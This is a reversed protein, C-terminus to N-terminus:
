LPNIKGNFNNLVPWLWGAIIIIIGITRLIPVLLPILSNEERKQESIDTPEKKTNYAIEKLILFMHSFLILFLGAATGSIGSTLWNVLGFKKTQNKYQFPSQCELTM